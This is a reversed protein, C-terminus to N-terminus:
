WISFLLEGGLKNKKAEVHTLIGKSTSVISYGLGGLVPKLDKSSVYWRRGPKSYLRVDTVAPSSSEGDYLLEIKITKVTDGSIAYGKLYRIEILKKLVSERFVSYPSEITQRHAQYGNKIRIMLDIIPPTM